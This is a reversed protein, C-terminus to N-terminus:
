PSRCESYLHSDLMDTLELCHAADSIRGTVAFDYAVNNLMLVYRGAPFLFDDTQPRIVITEPYGEVPAVKMQYSNGRVAWPGEVDSRAAKGDAFTLKHMVEAVIRVEVKDPADNMLNRRFVVFRVKGDPLLTSSPTAISGSIAVRSDPVRMALANLAVLKGDDLAYVGYSSPVPFGPNPLRPAELLTSQQPQDVKAIAQPRVISGLLSSIDARHDIAAFIAIGAAVALALQAKLWSGSRPLNSPSWAPGYPTDHDVLPPLPQTPEVRQLPTPMPPAPGLVEVLQANLVTAQVASQHLVLDRGTSDNAQDGGNMVSHQPLSLLPLDQAADAEIRAIAAELEILQDEMEPRHLHQYQLHLQRRLKNRALEYVMRRLQADDKATAAIMRTLVSYYDEQM